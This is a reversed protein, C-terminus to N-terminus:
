TLKSRDKLFRGHAFDDFFVSISHCPREHAFDDLPWEREPEEFLEQAAAIIYRGGPERERTARGGRVDGCSAVEPGLQGEADTNVSQLRCHAVGRSPVKAM